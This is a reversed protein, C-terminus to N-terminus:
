EERGVLPTLASSHFAEFRSEVGSERLVEFAHVPEIFGKAAIAGLDHYEFLNGVLWRTGLAIMVTNPKALTQLRAALNPTEGVVGREQAEGRGILDGVIVPGTGIGIRVQLEQTAANGLTDVAKILALGDGWRENPTM